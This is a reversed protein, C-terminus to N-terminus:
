GAQKGFTRERTVKDKCITWVPMALRQLSGGRLTELARGAADALAVGNATALPELAPIWSEDRTLAAALAGAARRNDDKSALQEQICTKV